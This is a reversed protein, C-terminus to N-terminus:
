LFNGGLKVATLLSVVATEVRLVCTPLSIGASFTSLLQEEKESFGGEPGVVVSTVESSQEQLKEGLHGRLSGHFCNGLSQVNLNQLSVPLFIKPLFPNKAQKCSEILIRLFRDKRKQWLSSAWQKRESREGFIPYIAHVGLECCKRLIIEFTTVANPLFPILNYQNATQSVKEFDGEFHVYSEKAILNLHGLRIGGEGDFTVVKEGKKCRLVTVVHRFEEDSLQFSNSCESLNPAFIWPYQWLQRM